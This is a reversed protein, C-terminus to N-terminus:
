PPIPERSRRSFVNSPAKMGEGGGKQCPIKSVIAAALELNCLHKYINRGQLLVTIETKKEKAM